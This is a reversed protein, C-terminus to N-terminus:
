AVGPAGLDLLFPAHNWTSPSPRARLTTNPNRCSKEDCEDCEDRPFKPFVTGKKPSAELSPFDCARLYACSLSKRQTTYPSGSPNSGRRERWEYGRLVLPNSSTVRQATLQALPIAVPWDHVSASTLVASVPFDRDITDLHLKYGIWSEQHGKSNCKCGVDCRAPLDALNEALTRAPQLELRKPPLPPRVEGQKPRGRKRPAAPATPTPKAVPREPAEIATADRSVHGVLKPGAHTKVM